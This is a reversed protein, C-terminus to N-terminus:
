TTSIRHPFLRKFSLKNVPKIESTGRVSGLMTMRYTIKKTKNNNTEVIEYRHQCRMAILDSFFLANVPDSGENTM